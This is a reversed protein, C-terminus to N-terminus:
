KAVYSVIFPPAHRNMQESNFHTSNGASKCLLQFRRGYKFRESTSDKLKNVEREELSDNRHKYWEKVMAVEAGEANM